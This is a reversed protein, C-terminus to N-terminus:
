MEIKIIENVLIVGLSNIHIKLNQILNKTLFILMMSMKLWKMQELAMMIM